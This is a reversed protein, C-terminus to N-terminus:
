EGDCGDGADAGADGSSCAGGASGGPGDGGGTGGASGGGAGGDGGTTVPIADASANNIIDTKTNFIVAILLLIGLTLIKKM